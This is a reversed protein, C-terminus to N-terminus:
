KNFVKNSIVIREINYVYSDVFPSMLEANKLKKNNLSLDM